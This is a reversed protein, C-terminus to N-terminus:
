TAKEFMSTDLYIPEEQIQCTDAESRGINQKLSRFHRYFTFIRKAMMLEHIAQIAILYRALFSGNYGSRGDLGLKM